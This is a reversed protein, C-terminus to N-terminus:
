LLDPLDRISEILHTHPHHMLQEHTHTGSTVGVVLSCGAATGERLDSPTDGVKAVESVDSIGTLEMARYVLDPYPRGNPVEDSCVTARVLDPGWGLRAMLVDVVARSFGTDLAVHIGRNGLEVFLQSAGQVERVDPDTRYYDIMRALFDQFIPQVTEDTPNAGAREMLARIALPKPTGMVANVEDPTWPIGAASLAGKLAGGVGDPDEVTTGAMDFIVLRIM